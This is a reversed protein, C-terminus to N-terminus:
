QLTPQPTPEASEMRRGLLVGFGVMQTLMGHMRAEDGMSVAGYPILQRVEKMMNDIEARSRKDDMLAIFIDFYKTSLVGITDADESEYHAKIAEAVQEKTM